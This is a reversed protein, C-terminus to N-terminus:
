FEFLSLSAFFCCDTFVLVYIDRLHYAPWAILLNHAPWAVLFTSTPQEVSGAPAYQFPFIAFSHFIPFSVHGSMIFSLWTRFPLFMNTQLFLFLNRQPTLCNICYAFQTGALHSFIHQHILKAHQVVLLPSNISNKLPVEGAESYRKLAGRPSQLLIMKVLNEESGPIQAAGWPSLFLIM